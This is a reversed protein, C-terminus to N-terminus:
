GSREKGDHAHIPGAIKMPQSESPQDLPRQASNNQRRNMKKDTLGLGRFTFMTIHAAVLEANFKQFEEEGILMAAVSRHHRYFHCQGVISFAALYREQISSEPMLEGLVAILKEAIPQIYDRVIEACAATPQALERMILQLSSLSRPQMVRRVVTAIFDRLKELAPTAHDWEPFPTGETCTRHAYKLTEIYLREKDGFYYNVAAINAGAQRCIERISAAKFGKRAFVDEAAELLRQQTADKM